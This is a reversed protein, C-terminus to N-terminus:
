AIFQETVKVLRKAQAVVAEQAGAVVNGEGDVTLSTGYPNGGVVSSAPNLYGPTVVIAGWHYMTTFLSLITAEQGGNDNQASTMAGVMKNSLAGKSWLGGQIDLFQKMQSPMNGFRTPMSFLYADAWDLDDASATPVDKTLEQTAKWAPQGDIVSQPALEAVKVLRVEAGEAEAAEKAWTAMKYNTGYTSYYIIALKVKKM